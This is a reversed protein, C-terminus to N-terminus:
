PLTIGGFGTVSDDWTKMTVTYTGGEYDEKIKFFLKSDPEYWFDLSGEGLGNDSRSYTYKQTSKGAIQTDGKNDRLIVDFVNLYESVTMPFLSKLYEKLTTEFFINEPDKKWNKWIPDSSNSWRLYRTWAGNGDYKLFIEHDREKEEYRVEGYYDNGIKIVTIQSNNGNTNSCEIVAKLNTPLVYDTSPKTNYPTATTEAEAGSGKSNVARVTFTYETGNILGTFTYSLNNSASVWNNGNDKSVEYKIIDSDGKDSPITWTLTVQGNSATAILNQPASPTGSVPKGGSDCSAIFFVMILVLFIAILRFKKKM